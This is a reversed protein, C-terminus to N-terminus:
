AGPMLMRTIRANGGRPQTHRSPTGRALIVACALPTLLGLPTGKQTRACPMVCRACAYARRTDQPTM